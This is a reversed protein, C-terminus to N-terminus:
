KFKLKNLEAWASPAEPDEELSPKSVTKNAKPLGSCETKCLPHQPFALLTDERLIPTLDICDNVVPVADEGELPLLVAWPDLNLEYKFPKLCRSCECDLVQKVKGTGVVTMGNKELDVSYTLPETAQILEDIGNIDLESPSITGELHVPNEELHRLNFTAGM